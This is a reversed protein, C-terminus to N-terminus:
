GPNNCAGDDAIGATTPDNWCCDLTEEDGPTTLRVFLRETLGELSIASMVFQGPIGVAVALL